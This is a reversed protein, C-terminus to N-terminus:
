LKGFCEPPLPSPKWGEPLQVRPSQLDLRNCVLDDFMDSPIIVGTPLAVPLEGLWAGGRRSKLVKIQGNGDRHDVFLVLEATREDATHQRFGCRGLLTIDIEAIPTGQMARSLHGRCVIIVPNLM